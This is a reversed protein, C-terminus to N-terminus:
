KTTKKDRQHMLYGIPAFINWCWGIAPIVKGKDVCFRFRWYNISTKVKQVFPIDSHLLEAYCTVTAVPSQMRIKIIRDTLGGELYDRYYVIENFYHIIYKKAIRNWVLAEPCFLEGDIEPFLYEKLVSTRFVEALDGVVNYKYRIDLANCDIVRNETKQPPFSTIDKMSHSSICGSVGGFEENNRIDQYYRSIIELSNSPISDDSDIILFLEGSAEKLGRNIARHKGGNKQKYYRIQIRREEIFGNVVEETNDISGDDVIIWEFDKYIQACLSKYLRNLLHARNYTPTFVTFLM